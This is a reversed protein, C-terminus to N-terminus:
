LSSISLSKQDTFNINRRLEVQLSAIQASYKGGQQFNDLFTCVLQDESFTNGVSVSLAQANLFRKIYNMTSGVGKQTVKQFIRDCRSKEAFIMKASHLQLKEICEIEDGLFDAILRRSHVAINTHLINRISSKAFYKIDEGGIKLYDLLVECAEKYQSLIM